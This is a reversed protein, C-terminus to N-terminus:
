NLGPSMKSLILDLLQQITQQAFTICTECLNKKLPSNLDNSMPHLQAERELEGHKILLDGFDNKRWGPPKGRPGHFRHSIAPTVLLVTTVFLVKDHTFINHLLTSSM